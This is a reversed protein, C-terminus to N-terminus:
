RLMTSENLIHTSYLFLVDQGKEFTIYYDLARSDIYRLDIMIIESYGCLLLPALSSSFSDRFLYLKKGNTVKPNTIKVLSRPGGLFLNYPDIEDLATEDYMPISLGQTMDEVVVTEFATNTLYRLKEKRFALASQGFYVGGFGEFEKELFSYQVADNNMSVLLHEAIPLLKEQRWHLDTAYYSESSLLAKIDIYEASTIGQSLVKEMELLDISPRNSEDSILSNKDPIVAYYCHSSALKQSLSEIKDAAKAYSEPKHRLIEYWSSRYSYLNNNDRKGLLYYSSMAKISRFADRMIAQDLLYAEYDEFYEGNWVDEATLQPKSKLPRRESFSIESDNKVLQGILLFAFVLAFLTVTLHRPSFKSKM